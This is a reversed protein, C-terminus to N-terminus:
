LILVHIVRLQRVNGMPSAKWEDHRPHGLSEKRGPLYRRMQLSPGANGQISAGPRRTGM